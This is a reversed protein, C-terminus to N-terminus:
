AAAPRPRFNRIARRLARVDAPSLGESSRSYRMREYRSLLKRARQADDRELARKTRSYLERPGLHEATNVGAQDLKDRL